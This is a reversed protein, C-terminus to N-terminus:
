NALIDRLKYYVTYRLRTYTPGAIVVSPIEWRLNIGGVAVPAPIKNTAIYAKTKGVQERTKFVDDMKKTIVWMIGPHSISRGLANVKIGKVFIRSIPVNFVGGGPNNVRNWANIIDLPTLQAASYDWRNQTMMPDKASIHALMGDGIATPNGVGDLGGAGLPAYLPGFWVQRAPADHPQVGGGGAAAIAPLAPNAVGTIIDGIRTASINHSPQINSFFVFKQWKNKSLKRKMRMRFKSGKVRNGRKM